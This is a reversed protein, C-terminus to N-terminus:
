KRCSGLLICILGFGLACLGPPEPVAIGSLTFSMDVTMPYLPGNNNSYYAIVPDYPPSPSISTRSIGWGWIATSNLNSSNEVTAVISIWYSQHMSVPFPNSLHASYTNKQIFWFYQENANGEIVSNSLLVGPQNALSEYFSITFRSVSAGEYYGIFGGTWNVSTVEADMPITFDDFVASRNQAGNMGDSYSAVELPRQSASQAFLVYDAVAYPASVSLRVLLIGAMVYKSIGARHIRHSMMEQGEM